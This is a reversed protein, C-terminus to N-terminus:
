IVLFCELLGDRRWVALAQSYMLPLISVKVLIKSVIEMEVTKINVM